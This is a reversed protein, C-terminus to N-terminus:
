QARRLMPFVPPSAGIQITTIVEFGHREYLPVNRPSSSELYAPLQERDVQLLAHKMLASGLGRGQASPAVGIIPLYWHPGDPHYSGMAEFMAVVDDLNERRGPQLMTLGMAEEDPETGPPLWLAAGSYNESYYATGRAIARGAFARMFDPASKRYDDLEPSMWRALPDTEFALILTEFLRDSDAANATEIQTVGKM